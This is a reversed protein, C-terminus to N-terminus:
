EKSQRRKAVNGVRDTDAGRTRGTAEVNRLAIALRRLLEGRGLQEAATRKRRVAISQRIGYIVIAAPILYKSLVAIVEGIERLWQPASIDPDPLDLSPLEISPLDINPAKLGLADALAALVVLVLATLLPGILPWM